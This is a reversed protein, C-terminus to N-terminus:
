GSFPEGFNKQYEVEKEELEQKIEAIHKDQLEKHNNMREVNVEAELVKMDIDEKATEAKTISLKLKKIELSYELKSKSM